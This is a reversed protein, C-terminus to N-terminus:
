TLDEPTARFPNVVLLGDIDQGDQLDETLLYRCAGAQASAVILADWWSLQFRSELHWARDLISPNIEIPLWPLLARVEVQAAFPPLGPKLKRTLTAYLEQLVQVSVRGRRSAWLVQTWRRAMQHRSGAAVDLAYVWVNTDVFILDRVLARKSPAIM